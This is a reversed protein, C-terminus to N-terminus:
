RPMAGQASDGAPKRLLRLSPVQPLFLIVRLRSDRDLREELAAVLPAAAVEGGRPLSIALPEEGALPDVGHRAFFSRRAAPYSLLRPQVVILEPRLGEFLQFARLRSAMDDDWVVFAPGPPVHLRMDRLLADFRM